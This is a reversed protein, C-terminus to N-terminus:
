QPAAVQGLRVERAGTHTVETTAGNKDGVHLAGTPAVDHRDEKHGDGVHSGRDPDCSPSPCATDDGVHSPAVQGDGDHSGPGGTAHVDDHSGDQSGGGACHRSGSGEGQM